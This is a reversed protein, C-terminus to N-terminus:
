AIEDLFQGDIPNILERVISTAFSGAPLAFQLSLTQKDQWQWSFEQPKVLIARRSSELREQNLLNIFQDYEYLQEQEFQLADNQSGLANGGPLPATIMLEHNDVRMQLQMLEDDKAVFWSGRGALQLADGLLVKQELQMSIRKSAIINFLFSRVSSLYFSRKKRERVTIEGKAWREAQILNNGNLGFRQSGFYNIAGAEVIHQLRSEVDAQNDIQRLILKFHNGQLNGIRLKRRHREIQLIQCGDLQFSSFDIDSKGPVHLCFWQETVAHKDKLGAYSVSKASIKAFHALQEAIFQTNYGRKKVRIFLHEGEGDLTYGLDESVTFDDESFKLIGSALPQGFLWVLNMM